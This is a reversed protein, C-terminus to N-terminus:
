AVRAAVGVRRFVARVRRRGRWPHERSAAWQRLLYGAVAFALCPIALGISLPIRDLKQGLLAGVGALLVALAVLHPRPLKEVARMMIAVFFLASIFWFTSFPRGAYSGGLLPRILTEITDRTIDGKITSAAFEIFILALWTVYPRGLTLWRMKTEDRITRKGTRWLWGTLFFFFPVTITALLMQPEGKPVPWTHRWVIVIVTLVRLLDISPLRAVM